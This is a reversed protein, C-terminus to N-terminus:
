TYDSSLYRVEPHAKIIEMRRTRHPEETMLWLFDSPDQPPGPYNDQKTTDGRYSEVVTRRPSRGVFSEAGGYLSFDADFITNWYASPFYVLFARVSPALRPPPLCPRNSMTRYEPRLRSWNRKPQWNGKKTVANRDAQNKFYKDLYSRTLLHGTWEHIIACCNAGRLLSWVRKDRRM